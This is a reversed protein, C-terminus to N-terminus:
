KLNFKKFVMICFYIQGKVGDYERLLEKYDYPLKYGLDEEIERIRWEEAPSNFEANRFLDKLKKDM